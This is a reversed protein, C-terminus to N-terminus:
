ARPNAFVVMDLKLQDAIDDLIKKKTVTNTGSVVYFTGTETEIKRQAKDPYDCDTVLPIGNVHMVLKNIEEIGLEKIVEIFTDIALDESIWSGDEMKVALINNSRTEATPESFEGFLEVLKRHLSKGPKGRNQEILAIYGRSYGVKEALDEQREFGASKRAKALQEGFSIVVTDETDSTDSTDKTDTVEQEAFLDTHQIAYSKIFKLLRSTACFWEGHVRFAGFHLHIRKEERRAEEETDFPIVGIDWIPSENGTQLVAQRTLLDTRTRGIKIFDPQKDGFNSKAFFYVIPQNDNQM